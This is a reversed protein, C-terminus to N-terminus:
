KKGPPESMGFSESAGLVMIRTCGPAPDRTIDPGLFGYNNLRLQRYRGNPRGRIVLSDRLKLDRDGNPTHMIPIGLRVRDDIRSFLEASAVAVLSFAVVM